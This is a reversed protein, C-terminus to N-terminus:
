RARDGPGQGGGGIWELQFGGEAEHGRTLARGYIGGVAGLEVGHLLKGLDQEHSIFQHENISRETTLYTMQWRGNAM